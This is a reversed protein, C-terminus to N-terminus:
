RDVAPQRGRAACRLAPPSRRDRRPQGRRHDGARAADAAGFAARAAEIVRASRMRGGCARRAAASTSRCSRVRATTGAGARAALEAVVADAYADHPIAPARTSRSTATRVACALLVPLPRLRGAARGGAADGAAVESMGGAQLRDRLDHRHPAAQRRRGRDEQAAEGRLQRRQPHRAHGSVGWIKELIEERPSRSGRGSGAAPAAARGRLVVARADEGQPGARAQASRRGRRRDRHAGDVDRPTRHLRRFIANIRAVLEGVSFPKTVYDDAGADLGRIKDTEQSRATLMIVPVLPHTSRIEECVAFGNADPLMLDLLVLDPGRERLLRVGERGPGSSVM